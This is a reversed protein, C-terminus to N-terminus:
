STHLRQLISLNSWELSHSTKLLGHSLKAIGVGLTDTVGVYMYMYMYAYHLAQRYLHDLITVLFHENFQFAYPFQETMQWVCDMFQLFIPARQDDSHNRDGHGIRQLNYNWATNNHMYTCTHIVVEYVHIYM